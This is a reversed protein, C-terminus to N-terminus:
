NQASKRLVTVILHLMRYQKYHVIELQKTLAVLQTSCNSGEQVFTVGGGGTRSMFLAYEKKENIVLTGKFIRGNIRGVFLVVKRILIKCNTSKKLNAEVNNPHM